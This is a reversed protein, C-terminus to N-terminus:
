WDKLIIDGPECHQMIANFVGYSLSSMSKCSTCQILVNEKGQRAEKKVKDDCNDCDAIYIIRKSM